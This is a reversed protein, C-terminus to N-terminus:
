LGYYSENKKRKIYHYIGEGLEGKFNYAQTERDRMFEIKSSDKLYNWTLKFGNFNIIIEIQTTKIVIGNGEEIVQFKSLTFRSTDFKDRGQFPIDELGPAVLWTNKIKM